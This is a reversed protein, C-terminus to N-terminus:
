YIEKLDCTGQLVVKTQLQKFPTVERELEREERGQVMQRAWALGDTGTRACQRLDNTPPLLMLEMESSFVSHM